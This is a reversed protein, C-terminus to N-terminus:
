LRGVDPLKLCRRHRLDKLKTFSPHGPTSGRFRLANEPHGIVRKEVRRRDYYIGSIKTRPFCAILYRRFLTDAQHRKM